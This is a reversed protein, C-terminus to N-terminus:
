GGSTRRGAARGDSGSPARVAAQEQCIPESHDHSWGQVVKGLEQWNKALEKARTNMIQVRVPEGLTAAMSGGCSGGTCTRPLMSRNCTTTSCSIWGNRTPSRTSNAGTATPRGGEKRRTIGRWAQELEDADRHWYRGLDQRSIELDLWFFWVRLAWTQPGFRYLEPVVQRMDYLPYGISGHIEALLVGRRASPRSAYVTLDGHNQDVLRRYCLRVHPPKKDYTYVIRNQPWWRSIYRPTFDGRLEITCTGDLGSSVEQWAAQGTPGRALARRWKSSLDPDGASLGQLRVWRNGRCDVPSRGATAWTTCWFTFWVSTPTTWSAIIRTGAVGPSSSSRLSARTRTVLTEGPVSSLRRPRLCLKGKCDGEVKLKLTRVGFPLYDLRDNEGREAQGSERAMVLKFSM